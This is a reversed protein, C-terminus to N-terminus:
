KDVPLIFKAKPKVPKGSLGPHLHLEQGDCIEAVDMKSKANDNIKAHVDMITNIISEFFNKEIHMVDLNYRLM